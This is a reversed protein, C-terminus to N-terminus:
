NLEIRKLKEELEADESDRKVGISSNRGSLDVTNARVGDWFDSIGAMKTRVFQQLFKEHASNIEEDTLTYPTIPERCLFADIAASFVIRLKPIIVWIMGYYREIFRRGREADMSPAADFFKANKEILRRCSSQSLASQFLTNLKDAPLYELKRISMQQRLHALCKRQLVLEMTDTLGSM